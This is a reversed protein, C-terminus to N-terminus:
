LGLLRGAERRYLEPLYFRSHLYLPIFAPPLLEALIEEMAPKIRDLADYNQHYNEKLFTIIEENEPCMDARFLMDQVPLGTVLVEDYQQMIDLLRATIHNKRCLPLYLHPILYYDEM